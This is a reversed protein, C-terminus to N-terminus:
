VVAWDLLVYPALLHDARVNGTYEWSASSFQLVWDSTKMMTLYKDRYAVDSCAYDDVLLRAAKKVPEPVSEWGWTGQILYKTGPRFGSYYATYPTTIIPGYDLSTDPPMQKITMLSASNQQLYWGDSVISYAYPNYTYEPTSVTELTLLRNPLKLSKNGDGPVVVEGTFKGFFQGTHADIIHRVLSELEVLEEDDLNPATKRLERMTLYPTIVNYSETKIFSGSGPIGLTWAVDVKAEDPVFPLKAEWRDDDFATVLGGQYIGNKKWTASVIWDSEGELYVKNLTEKWLEM